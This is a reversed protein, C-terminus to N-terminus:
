DINWHETQLRVLDTRLRENLEPMALQQEQTFEEM